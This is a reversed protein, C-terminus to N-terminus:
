ANEILFPFPGAGNVTCPVADPQAAGGTMAAGIASIVVVTGNTFTASNDNPKVLTFTQTGSATQCVFTFTQADASAPGALGALGALSLTASLAVACAVKRM